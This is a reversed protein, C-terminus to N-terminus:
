RNNHYRKWKYLRKTTKSIFYYVDFVITTITLLVCFIEFFVKLFAFLFRLYARFRGHLYHNYDFWNRGWLIKTYRM